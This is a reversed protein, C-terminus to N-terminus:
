PPVVRPRLGPRANEREDLEKAGGVGGATAALLALNRATQYASNVARPTRDLILNEIHRKYEDSPM